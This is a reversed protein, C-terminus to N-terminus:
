LDGFKSGLISLAVLAATETRLIRPGLQVAAFGCQTATQVEEPEFGGEPGILLTVSNQGAAPNLSLDTIRLTSYPDLTFKVQSTCSRCFEEASMIPHVVPVVARGCQECAAAAIKQWSQVKKDQRKDDLKVNCRVSTLPYIDAIGLEVAKQITFDMKDGRSIVQGLSMRLPSERQAAEPISEGIRVVAKKGAETLEAQFEHGQGDFVRLPSGAKLRLVRCVHGSGDESLTVSSGPSLQAEPEYIRPVRM